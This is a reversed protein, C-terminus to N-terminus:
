AQQTPDAQYMQYNMMHPPAPYGPQPMSYKDPNFGFGTMAFLEAISIM